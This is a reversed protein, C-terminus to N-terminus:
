TKDLIGMRWLKITIEKNSIVEDSQEECRRGKM